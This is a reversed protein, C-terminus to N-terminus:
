AEFLRGAAFERIATTVRDVPVAEGFHEGMETAIDERTRSGDALVLMLRTADQSSVFKTHRLSITAEDHAIMTRVLTGARPKEGPELTYNPPTSQIEILGMIAVWRLNKDLAEASLGSAAKLEDYTLERPGAEILAEMMAIMEPDASTIFITEGKAYKIGPMGVDDVGPERTGRFHYWLQKLPEAEAPPPADTRILLDGRFMHSGRLLDLAINKDLKEPGVANFLAMAEADLDGIYLDHLAADGAHKMGNKAAEEGLEQLSVPRYFEALWDHFFYSRMYRPVDRVLADLQPKLRSGDRQHRALVTILKVATEVREVLDPIHRTREVLFKNIAQKAGSGPLCDYGLYAVGGPALKKGILEILPSRVFDPVWSYVGHCTIYDFQEGDRPWTLIDGVHLEINTLGAREILERGKGIATESLDFGVCRGDPNNAAIGILNFGNGCGIELVRATRADPASYGHMLGSARLQNPTQSSLIPTPYEVEDYAFAPAPADNM